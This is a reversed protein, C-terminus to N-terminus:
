WSFLCLIIVMKFISENAGGILDYLWSIKQLDIAAFVILVPILPLSILADTVRMLAADIVGGYFGAVAGILFGILGSALAVLIGVGMSVRAGYILRIFVDRGIEDTGFLHFTSWTDFVKKLKLAEPTQVTSLLKKAEVPDLAALEYLVDAEGGQVLSKEVIAKQLVAAENPNEEIWHEIETERIDTSAMASELPLLYRASVNQRDPDLGTVASILPAGIAATLLILIVVAGAVAMKHEMFQRFVIAKMSQATESRQIANQKKTENM